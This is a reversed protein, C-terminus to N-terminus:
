DRSSLSVKQRRCVSCDSSVGFRAGTLLLLLGSFGTSEM